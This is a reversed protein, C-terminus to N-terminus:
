FVRHGCLFWNYFEQAMELKFNATYGFAHWRLSIEVCQNGTVPWCCCGSFLSLEESTKWVSYRQLASFLAISNAPVVYKGDGTPTHKRYTFPIKLFRCPIHIKLPVHFSWVRASVICDKLVILRWIKKLVNWKESWSNKKKGFLDCIELGISLILILQPDFSGKTLCIRSVIYFFM